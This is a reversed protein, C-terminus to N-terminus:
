SDGKQSIDARTTGDAFTIDVTDGATLEAARRILKGDKQIL